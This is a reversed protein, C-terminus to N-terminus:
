QEEELLLRYVENKPLNRDKAVAKIADMKKYGEEIYMSVHESVSLSSLANVARTAGEVVLVYEGRFEEPPTSLSAFTVEEYLKTIERVLAVRRDGLIEVLMEMVSKVDHPAAYFLLTAPLNRYPELLKECDKKKEPLFGLFAFASSDMGSLVLATIAASAGPLVTYKQNSEIALRVLERGPDSVAPMGADSIYAISKGSKLKEIVEAAREKENFKHLSHLPKKIQYRALLPASHRTDECYIEDCESLVEIARLTIDQMNGIPTAVLYLM